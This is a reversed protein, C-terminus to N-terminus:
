IPDYYFASLCKRHPVSTATKDKKATDISYLHATEMSSQSDVLM